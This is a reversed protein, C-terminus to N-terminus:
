DLKKLMQMVEKKPFFALYSEIDDKGFSVVYEGNREVIGAAFEIGYSIFKFPESLEIMTGNEDFRAFYHFYDKEKAKIAGFHRESFMEYTKSWLKHMVCLYTGDGLDLLHTNGRLGTFEKNEHMTLIIKNDKVIANPGYIYDFKTPKKYSTMWNKEPKKPEVGGYTHVRVVKTAKDDMECFCHRAVPTHKEMMVGTFQWKGDRWLLKPDEVGRKIKVGCNSFNIKRLNQLELDKSFEAFWVNNQIMGGETVFLEGSDLIVYNSSRFAVAYNGKDDVGISPNFASWLKDKKDVLRRLYQVRAGHDSITSDPQIDKLSM